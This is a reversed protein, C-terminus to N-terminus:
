HLPFFCNFVSGKGQESEVTIIGKHNEMIKKCIALGMGTGEFEHKGHLRQFVQFIKKAYRQDFGFGNDSFSLKLYEEKPENVKVNSGNVMESTITLQPVAGPKQFKIANSILNKFLYFVQNPNAKIAPLKGTNIISGTEKIQDTMDDLIQEMIKNLDVDEERHTDSHIKTLVLIDDILIEMRHVSAGIKEVLSKGKASLQGMEQELLWDSFTHIKRLPEKMDHSAVFAFGTIEDNKQELEINKNELKKNLTNLQETAIVYDSVDHMINVVAYTEGNANQLPVYFLELYDGTYGDRVMPVHIFEGKLSLRQSNMFEPYNEVGPFIEFITKGIVEEKTKRHIQECRKNWGVFKYDRDFVTIRDVSADLIAETFQTRQNLQNRLEVEETVNQLISLVHTVKASADRLFPKSRNRIWITKGNGTKIRYEINVVEGDKAAVVKENSHLLNM